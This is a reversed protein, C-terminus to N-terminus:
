QEVEDNTSKNAGDELKLDSHLPKEELVTNELRTALEGNAVNEVASSSKIINPLIYKEWGSRKRLKDGQVEVSPSNQMVNLIFQIPDKDNGDLFNNAQATIDKVRQFEAITSVSVWGQEDMNRRLHVDRVLNDDSFYYNIQKMLNSIHFPLGFPVHPPLPRMPLPGIMPPGYFVRQGAFPPIGPSMLQVPPFPPPLPPYPAVPFAPRPLPGPPPGFFVPPPVPGNRANHSPHTNADRNGRDVNKRRGHSGDGRPHHGVNGKRHSDQHQPHNGGSHLQPRPGNKPGTEPNSNNNYSGNNVSVQTVPGQSSPPQSRDTNGVSSSTAHNRTDKNRGPHVNSQASNPKVSHAVHNRSSSAESVTRSHDSTPRPQRQPRRPANATESLSPWVGARMVPVADVAGNIPINWTQRRAVNVGVNNSTEAAADSSVNNPTERGEGSPASSM